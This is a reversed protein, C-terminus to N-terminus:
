RNLPDPHGSLSNFDGIGLLAHLLGSDRVYVKPSKVLRKGVNARYPGLRRVLLLDVLLDIYKTVTPASLSLAAALNSANLLTGQGHARRGAGHDARFEPNRHNVELGPQATPITAHRLFYVAENGIRDRVDQPGWRWVGVVIKQIFADGLIFDIQDTVDHDIREHHQFVLDLRRTRALFEPEFGAVVREHGQM